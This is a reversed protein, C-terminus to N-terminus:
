NSLDCTLSNESTVGDSQNRTTVVAPLLRKLGGSCNIRTTTGNSPNIFRAPYKNKRCPTGNLLVITDNVKFGTGNVQLIFKGESNRVVKCNTLVPGDVPPEGEVCTFTVDFGLPNPYNTSRVGDARVVFVYYPTNPTLQAIPVTATIINTAVHV